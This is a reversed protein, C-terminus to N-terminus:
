TVTTTTTPASAPDVIIKGDEYRGGRTKAPGKGSQMQPLKRIVRPPPPQEVVAPKPPPPMMITIVIAAILLAIGGVSILIMDRRNKLAVPCDCTMFKGDTRKYLTFKRRNERKYILAQAEPLELGEFNYVCMQCKACSRFREQGKTDNWS